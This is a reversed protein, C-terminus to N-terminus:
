TGISHTPIADLRPHQITYAAVALRDVELETLLHSGRLREIRLEQNCDKGENLDM